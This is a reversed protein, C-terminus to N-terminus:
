MQRPGVTGFAVSGKEVVKMEIWVVLMERRYETVTDTEGAGLILKSAYRHDNIM